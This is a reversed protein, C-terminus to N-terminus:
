VKRQHRLRPHHHNPSAVVTEDASRVQRALAYIHTQDLTAFQEAVQVPHHAPLLITAPALKIRETKGAIYALATSTAGLVGFLGFHHEPLWASLPTKARRQLIAAASKSRPM